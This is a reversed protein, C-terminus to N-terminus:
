SVTLDGGSVVVSKSQLPQTAPSDSTPAGTSVDFASGHCPCLIFGNVVADVLCGQHPCVASFAKFTGAKPQTVVVQQDTFVRGGGVPIESIPTGGANAGAAQASAPSGPQSPPTVPPSSCAALGVGAAGAAAGILVGRRSTGSGGTTGREKMCPTGEDGPAAGVPSTM